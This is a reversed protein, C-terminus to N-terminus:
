CGLHTPHTPRLGPENANKPGWRGGQGLHSIFTYELPHWFSSFPRSLAALVYLSFQSSQNSSVTGGEVVMGPELAKQSRRICKSVETKKLTLFTRNVSVMPFEASRVHLAKEQHLVANQLVANAYQLAQRQWSEAKYFLTYVRPFHSLVYLCSGPSILEIRPVWTFSLFYRM